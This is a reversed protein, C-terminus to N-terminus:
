KEPQELKINILEIRREIAADPNYISNRKDSVVDSVGQRALMEGAAVETVKLSGDLLFPDLIGANYARLFNALSSIRRKSLNINYESKALPSARGRIEIEIKIGEKLAKELKSCFSNLQVWSATVKLDFFETVKKEAQVKENGSLTGAYIFLYEPLKDLYNNYLSEYEKKTVIATSRKDPEDNDFYIEMPLFQDYYSRDSLVKVDEVVLISDKLAPIIEAIVVPNTDKKSLRYYYIDYCCTKSRIYMSGIRNSSFTGTKGNQNITYYVDNVPSNFGPGLNEPISFHGNTVVSKFIDMGGMNAHGYSSFYLTRNPTDFWPTMEDDFTNIEKGANIPNSFVFDATFESKWIDLKGEGGNRDSVFYLTYGEAGRAEVAPHTATTGELNVGGGALQPKGWQGNEYKSFLLECMLGTNETQECRTFFLIRYDPSFGVNCNHTAADNFLINLPLPQKNKDTAPKTSLIRSVYYTENKKGTQEYLFRLSSFYLISDNLYSAGFESYTTNVPSGANTVETEISKNSIALANKMDAFEKKAKVGYYSSDGPNANIFREYLRGSEEYMGMYKKMEAYRFLAIPFRNERDGTVIKAYWSAAREYDNYQRCAEAMKYSVLPDDTEFELAKKYYEIAEAYRSKEMSKDGASLYAKLTQASVSNFAGTIIFLFIFVFNLRKMFRIRNKMVIKSRM